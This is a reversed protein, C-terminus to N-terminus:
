PAVEGQKLVAVSGQARLSKLWDGLLNSVQEQLLVEQIRDSVSALPAPPVHNKAYEPLLYKDYYAKIEPETIHVGMKFREEIFRLTVMRTRWRDRFTEVTFGHAALVRAWDADSTCGNAKCEPLNKRMSLTDKDVETDTIPDEQQLKAQQAILDRNILREVAKARSFDESASRIPQFAAFRREEDVDSDLILDGNVVAVVRDLETTDGKAPMVPAAKVQAPASAPVAAKQAATQAAATACCLAAAAVVCMGTQLLKTM